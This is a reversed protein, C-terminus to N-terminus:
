RAVDVIDPIHAAEALLLDRFKEFEEFVVM